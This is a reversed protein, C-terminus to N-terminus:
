YDPNYPRRNHYEVKKNNSHGKLHKRYWFAAGYHQCCPNRDGLDIYAPSVGETYASRFEGGRTNLIQRVTENNDVTTDKTDGVVPLLLNVCTRQHRKHRNCSSFSPEYASMAESTINDAYASIVAANGIALSSLPSQEQPCESIASYGVSPESISKRNNKPVRKRKLKWCVHPSVLSHVYIPACVDQNVCRLQVMNHSTFFSTYPTCDNKLQELTQIADNVKEDHPVEDYSPLLTWSEKVNYNKMVWRPCHTRSQDYICLCEDIIGLYSLLTVEFREDYEPLPIEKIKETSLDFSVIVCKLTNKDKPEQMLWHIAGNCLIGVFTPFHYYLYELKGLSRWVNTKLSLVQVSEPKGLVVKYDDSFSDYGFGLFPYSGPIDEIDTKRPNPLIKFERISPNGVLVRANSSSICVLGNSSGVINYKKISYYWNYSPIPRGTYSDLESIVIRRVGFNNNNRDNNGSHKLHAKVFRNSSIFFRWLKCVNKCRILNKVDLRVLISELIDPVLKEM